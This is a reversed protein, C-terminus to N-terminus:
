RLAAHFYVKGVSILVLGEFKIVPGLVPVFVLKVLFFRINCLLFQTFVITVRWFSIWCDAACFVNQVLPVSM